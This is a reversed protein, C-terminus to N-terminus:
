ILRLQASTAPTSLSTLVAALESRSGIVKAGRQTLLASGLSDGGVGLDLAFVDRGLALGRLGANFTGGRERAEVVVMARSLGVITDNRIMAADARWAQSPAFQSVVVARDHDWSRSLAAKHKFCQIGEALVIVTNGGRELAGLHAATDVGRAYGSVVTLGRAVAVQACAGAAALGHSSAQRSGCVGIGPQGLLTRPGRYFLAPPATPSEALLAPYGPDGLLVAKVDMTLLREAEETM